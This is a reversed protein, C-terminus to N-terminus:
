GGLNKLAQNVSDLQSKAKPDSSAKSELHSKASKYASIAESKKGSREYCMGLKQNLKGRDGGMQIARELSKAAGDFKGVMMQDNASKVVATLGNGNKEPQPDIFTGGTGTSKGPGKRPVITIGRAKDEPQPNQAPPNSGGEPKPDETVTEPPATQRSPEVTVPRWADGTEKPDEKPNPLTPTGGGTLPPRQANSADYNGSNGNGANNGNGRPIIRKEPDGQDETGQSQSEPTQTGTPNSPNLKPTGTFSENLIVPSENSAVKTAPKTPSSAIAFAVGGSVFLVVVLAAAALALKRNQPAPEQAQRTIVNRVQTVKIKDLASDPNLEVVREYCELALVTEGEREYFMGLLSHAGAANPDIELVSKAILEAEENRGLSLLEYGRALLKMNEDRALERLQESIERGCSKCFLSDLTNSTKCHTCTM